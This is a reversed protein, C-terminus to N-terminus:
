QDKAWPEQDETRPGQDEKPGQDQRPQSSFVNTYRLNPEVSIQWFLSDSVNSLFGVLRRPQPPTADPLRGVVGVEEEWMGNKEATRGWRRENQGWIEAIRAGDKGWRKRRGPGM